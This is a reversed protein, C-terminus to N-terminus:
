NVLTYRDRRAVPDISHVHREWRSAVICTVAPVVVIWVFLILLSALM